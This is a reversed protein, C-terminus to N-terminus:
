LSNSETLLLFCCAFCLVNVYICFILQQIYLGSGMRILHADPLHIFRLSFLQCLLFFPCSFFSRFLVLFFQIRLHFGVPVLSFFVIYHLRHLCGYEFLITGFLKSSASAAAAESYAWAWTHISLIPFFLLRFVLGCLESRVVKRKELHMSGSFLIYLIALFASAPLVFSSLCFFFYKFVICFSPFVFRM